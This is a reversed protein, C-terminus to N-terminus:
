KTTPLVFVKGVASVREAPYRKVLETAVALGNANGLKEAVIRLIVACALGDEGGITPERSALVAYSVADALHGSAAKGQGQALAAWSWFASLAARLRLNQGKRAEEYSGLERALGDVGHAEVVLCLLESLLSPDIGSVRVARRYEEIADERRALARLSRALAGRMLVESGLKRDLCAQLSKVAEGYRGTAFEATARPPMLEDANTGAKVCLAQLRQELRHFEDDKGEQLLFTYWPLAVAVPAPPPLQPLDIPLEPAENQDVQAFYLDRGKEYAKWAEERRGARALLQMHDAHLRVSGPHKRIGEGIIDLAGPAGYTSYWGYDEASLEEGLARRTELREFHENFLGMQQLQLDVMGRVARLDDAPPTQHHSTFEVLRAVDLAGQQMGLQNLLSILMQARGFGLPRKKLEADLLRLADERKGGALYGQGLLERLGALEHELSETPAGPGEKVAALTTELRAIGHELVEVSEAQRKLRVLLFALCRYCSALDTAQGSSRPSSKLEAPLECGKRYVQEADAVRGRAEYWTGLNWYLFPEEPYRAMGDRYAREAKGWDKLATCAFALHLYVTPYNMGEAIARRYWDCAAGYRGRRYALDALKEATRGGTDQELVKRLMAEAEDHKGDKQLVEAMDHARLVDLGFKEILQELEKKRGPPDLTAKSAALLESAFPLDPRITKAIALEAMLRQSAAVGNEGRRRGYLARELRSWYDNPELLLAQSFYTNAAEYDGQQSCAIVGLWYLDKASAPPLNKAEERAVRGEEQRGLAELFYARFTRISRFNPQLRQAEEIDALARDLTEARSAHLRARQVLPWDATPDIDLAASYADLGRQRTQEIAAPLWTPRQGTLCRFLAADGEDVQKAFTARREAEYSAKAADQEAQYHEWTAKALFGGLVAAAVLAILFAAVWPRRRMLRGVRGIKSMPRATIPRLELYNRLDAALPEGSAYRDAPAKRLCKDTIAELEWPITKEAQRLLPADSNLVASLVDASTQGPFPRDLSLCEFLTVGFSFVDSAPSVSELDGRAQEPSTYAPTGFFEGTVTTSPGGATRALGFDVIKPAGDAAFVINAPKVDRHLIGAAHVAALGQAVRQLTEIVWVFYARDLRAPHARWPQGHEDADRSSLVRAVVASALSEPGAGRITQLVQALTPGAVYEMALYLYGRAEGTSLVPVVNPHNLQALAVAETVFRAKLRADRAAEPKCVKLAVLRGLPQQRALYVHGMGGSALPRLVAFEGLLDGPALADTDHGQLASAPRRLLDFLAEVRAYAAAVAGDLGEDIGQEPDSGSKPLARHAPDDHEDPATM